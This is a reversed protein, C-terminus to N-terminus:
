LYNKNTSYKVGKKIYINQYYYNKYCFNSEQTVNIGNATVKNEYLFIM